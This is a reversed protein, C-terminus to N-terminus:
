PQIGPRVALLVGRELAVHAEPAAFVNSVGRTSGPELTEHRLPFVLGETVVGEVAGHLPLLSVLEGPEGTMRREERVVHAQAPGFLADVEYSAYRESGLLLAVGLLHDLRGGGAALVLLRRPALAAAADLALELDTADKAAPHRLVVAGAAEAAALGAPTASDFDGVATTVALGLALAHDVGADAAIVPVGAPLPEPPAQPLGGGAIIIVTHHQM